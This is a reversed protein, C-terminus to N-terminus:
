SMITQDLIEIQLGATSSLFSRPQAEPTMVKTKDTNLVLGVQSLCVVLEDLFLGADIYTTAFILIDDAFRLDLLTPGGDGLDLRLKGVTRRWMGMAMELVACFLRPSLVCGQRVGRKIDFLTSSENTGAIQGRQDKDM